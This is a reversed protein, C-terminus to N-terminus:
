SCDLKLRVTFATKTEEIKLDHKNPYSLELRQKINNLGIGGVRDKSYEKQPKSNDVTFILQNGSTQLSIHVYGTRIDEIFSHKFANEVFPIFLLPAMKLHQNGEELSLNLKIDMGRSDKLEVMGLYNKLYALERELPVREENSDYLMYRLIDSLKLLQTAAKEADMIALAYINHLVNFLFHPNIQSKLFKVETELKAKDLAIAEKEKESAFRSVSVLSSGLLSIFLPPLNRILWIFSSVDNQNNSKALDKQHIEEPFQEIESAEKENWPLNDSHIIWVISIMMLGSSLLYLGKKKKFYLNPLLWKLNIFVVISSGVMTLIARNWFRADLEDWNSLILLIFIWGAGWILLQYLIHRQSKNKM